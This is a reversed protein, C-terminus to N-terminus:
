LRGDQHANMWKEGEEPSLSWVHRWERYSGSVKFVTEKERVIIETIFGIFWPDRPDKDSYKAALVYQRLKPRKIKRM